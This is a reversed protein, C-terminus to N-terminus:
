VKVYGNEICWLLLNGAAEAPNEEHAIFLNNCNDTKIGYGIIYSYPSNSHRKIAKLIYLLYEKGKFISDPLM